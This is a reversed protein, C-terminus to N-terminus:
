AAVIDKLRAAPEMTVEVFVSVFLACLSRRILNSVMEIRGERHIEDRSAEIFEIFDTQLEVPLSRFADLLGASQLRDRLDDPLVPGEM